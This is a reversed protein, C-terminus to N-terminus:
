HCLRLGSNSGKGLGVSTSTSSVTFKFQARQLKWRLDPTLCSNSDRSLSVNAVVELSKEFQDVLGFLMRLGPLLFFFLKMLHMFHSLSEYINKSTRSDGLSLKTHTHLNSKTKPDGGASNFISWTKYKHPRKSLKKPFRETSPIFSPNARHLAIAMFGTDRVRM